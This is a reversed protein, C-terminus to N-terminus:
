LGAAKAQEWLADMEQLSMEALSRGAEEAAQEIYRFRRYFRLNAERLATEPEVGMWRIWNVLAFLLDGIERRRAEPDEATQIEAIEEGIKEVVPEIHDWDFGVRAAREQYGYAQALAPLARSVGDLLSAKQQGNDRREQKKIAEWNRIVDAAGSVATDGWVHPHRHILKHNIHEIVDAMRFEGEDIAVQCHFVVQLLLDGLEERLADVNGTDLAELVEYAEELLYPRLSEHTQERDWPCGDPARLHAMTDQLSEFSGLRSVPPVYLATLHSIQGSRDLAYLPLMELHADDTGAGHVLTIPHEEPYQNMLTLKLDSAVAQSYVQALLAPADPNLPPHHMRAVALADWIQLGDAADLGLLTLTPEIFSLGEVIRLPIGQEGALALIRTVTAEAVLPHGPVAYLVDEGQAALALVERAIEEYLAEFDTAQEYHDDLSRYHPGKPLGPVTPHRATRLIVTSAHQLAKWAELTLLDPSGPGLGVITIPM